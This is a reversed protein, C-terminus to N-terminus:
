SVNRRNALELKLEKKIPLAKLFIEARLDNLCKLIVYICDEIGLDQGMSCIERSVCETPFEEISLFDGLLRLDCLELLIPKVNPEDFIKLFEAHRRGLGVKKIYGDNIARSVLIETGEEFRFGFRTKFRIGRVVRIPDDFLSKEHLLKLQKLKLDGIGNFLDVISASSINLNDVAIANISFDRRSLDDELTGEIVEPKAACSLYREKRAFVFDFEFGPRLDNFVVEIKFTRFDTLRQSLKINSEEPLNKRCFAVIRQFSEELTGNYESIVFDLDSLPCGLILDRVAGGVLYLGCDREQLLLTAINQRVEDSTM